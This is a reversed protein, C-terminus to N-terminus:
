IKATFEQATMDETFPRSGTEPTAVKILYRHDFGGTPPTLEFLPELIKM